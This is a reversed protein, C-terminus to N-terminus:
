NPVGPSGKLTHGGIYAKCRHCVYKSPHGERQLISIVQQEFCNTCAWHPPSAPQMSPKSAYVFLGVGPSHLEYNQSKAEWNKLKSVEEALNQKDRLLALKEEAGSANAILAESLKEQLATAANMLEGYVALQDLQRLLATLSRSSSIAEAIENAM